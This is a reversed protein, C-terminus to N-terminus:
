NPAELMRLSIELVQHQHQLYVSFANQGFIWNSDPTCSPLKPTIMAAPTHTFVNNVSLM